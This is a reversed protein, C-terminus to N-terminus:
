TACRRVDSGRAVIRIRGRRRFQPQVARRYIRHRAARTMVQTLNATYNGAPQPKLNVGFHKALHLAFMNSASGNTSIGITKGDADKMTKVPSDALVYYVQEDASTFSAGVGRLPAGKM